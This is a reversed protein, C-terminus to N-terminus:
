GVSHLCSPEAGDLSEQHDRFRLVNDSSLDVQNEQGAVLQDDQSGRFPQVSGKRFPRVRSEPRDLGAKHADRSEKLTSAWDVRVSSSPM